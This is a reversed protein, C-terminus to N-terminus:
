LAIGIMHERQTAAAIIEAPCDRADLAAFDHQARGAQAVRARRTEGPRACRAGGQIVARTQWRTQERRILSLATATANKEASIYPRM